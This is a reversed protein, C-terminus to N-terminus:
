GSLAADIEQGRDRAATLADLVIAPLERATMVDVAAETTGGPTTVIRRLTAPEAGTERLMRSAGIITQVVLRQATAPDLGLDIAAREMLEALLYVYAPGSGSVATVAHMLAEDLLATRGLSQFIEEALTEDGPSAGAGIAIGTMGEGLQCPTNPMTRVIRAMPGLLSRIHESSLGAMITIVVMPRDIPAIEAAVTAFMQPKVALLIQDAERVVEGATAVTRIGHGGLEARREADPEGVVLDSATVVRAALAGRAIAGGMNGGGIVGLVCAM